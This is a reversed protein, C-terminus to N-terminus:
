VPPGQIGLKYLLYSVVVVWFIKVVFDILKTYTQESQSTRIAIGEMKVASEQLKDTFSDITAMIERIKQEMHEVKHEIKHLSKAQENRKKSVDELIKTNKEQNKEIADLKKEINNM